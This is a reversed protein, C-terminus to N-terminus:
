VSKIYFKYYLDANSFSKGCIFKMSGTLNIEVAPFHTAYFEFQRTKPLDAPYIKKGLKSVVL